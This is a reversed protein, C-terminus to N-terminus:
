RVKYAVDPDYSGARGEFYETAITGRPIFFTCQLANYLEDREVWLGCSVSPDTTLVVPRKLDFYAKAKKQNVKIVQRARNGKDVTQVRSIGRYVASYPSEKNGLLAQPKSIDVMTRLMHRKVRKNSPPGSEDSVSSLATATEWFAEETTKVSLGQVDAWNHLESFTVQSREWRKVFQKDNAPASDPEIKSTMWGAATTCMSPTWELNPSSPVGLGGLQTHLYCVGSKYVNRDFFCPMGARILFPAMTSVIDKDEKKLYKISDQLEKAKGVLPDAADYQKGGQKQFQNMLRLKVTDVKIATLYRPHIGFDQCYHLYKKSIRYKPWSIEYGMQELLKPIAQVLDLDGLAVHDDGACVFMNMGARALREPRTWPLPKDVIDRYGQLATYYAGMSSTTLIVKAIPEGMLSGRVSNVIVDKRGPGRISDPVLKLFSERERNSACRYHIERPSCHLNVAQILYSRLGRPPDLADILGCMLSRGNVHDVRDTASTLDSSSIYEPYTTPSRRGFHREFSAGFRYLHHTDALGVNAGPLNILCETLYHAAPILFLYLWTEGSTVPRIKSGPETVVVAKTKPKRFEDQFDLFKSYAWLFLLQGIRADFGIALDSDLLSEVQVHDGLDGELEEKLYATKWM